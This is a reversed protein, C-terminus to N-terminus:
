DEEHKERPKRHKRLSGSRILANTEETMKFKQIKGSLTMPYEDVLRVYRPAKFSALNAYCFELISVIHEHSEDHSDGVALPKHQECSSANKIRVWVAVEEGLRGDAVGCVYADKVLPHKLLLEEIEKPFINEGGRIIMDRKRGCITVYGEEDMIGLDGTHMWGNSDIAASTATPNNWYGKMVSYGRTCVEGVAGIPVTLGEDKGIIKIEVHPHVQGVTTLQKVMDTGVRTQTSVPSTETMGYCVEVDRMHMEEKVRRMVEAPCQAGAMVGTRLSSLDYKAFSPDALEDIFMTPVGFLATAREEQVAELVRTPHFTDSPYVITSGHTLCSLNGMVMGFCHFLPVPIVLKDRETLKMLEGVFYGNNIINHHSLTAGKPAGTTGSTYQINIADDPDLSRAREALLDDLCHIGGGGKRNIRHHSADSGNALFDNWSLLHAKSRIRSLDEEHSNGSEAIPRNSASSPIALIHELQELSSSGAAHLLERMYASSELSIFCRCGSHSLAYLLEREKYSPNITVLIAGITATALQAVLWELRNPARIGVRDGKALGLALFSKACRVAELHLEAYSLRIGQHVSVLALHDPFRLVTELFRNGITTGILPADAVGSSYSVKTGGSPPVVAHRAALRLSSRRLM